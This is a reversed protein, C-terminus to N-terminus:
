ATAKAAARPKRSRPKSNAQETSSILKGTIVAGPAVQISAYIVNGDIQAGSEVKVKKAHLNGKVHGKVIVDSCRVDGRVRAKDDIVLLSPMDPRATINGQIEGRTHMGGTFFLDGKFKTQDDILCQLKINDTTKLMTSDRFLM